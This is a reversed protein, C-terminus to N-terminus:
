RPSLGLFVSRRRERLQEISMNSKLVFAQAESVVGSAPTTALKALFPELAPGFADCQADVQAPDRGVVRGCDDRGHWDCLHACSLIARNLAFEPDTLNSM